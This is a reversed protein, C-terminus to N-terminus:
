SAMGLWAGVMFAGLLALLFFILYRSRRARDQAARSAAWLETAAGERAPAQVPGTEQVPLPRPPVTAGAREGQVNGLPRGEIDPAAAAQETRWGGKMIESAREVQDTTVKVSIFVRGASGAGAASEAAPGEAAQAVDKLIIRERTIGISELHQRAAEAEEITSFTSALTRM